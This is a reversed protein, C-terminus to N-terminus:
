RRTSSIPHYLPVSRHHTQRVYTLIYDIMTISVLHDPKDSSEIAGYTMMRGYSADHSHYSYTFARIPTDYTHKDYIISTYLSSCTDDMVLHVTM